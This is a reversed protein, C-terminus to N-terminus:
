KFSTNHLKIYIEIIKIMASFFDLFHYYHTNLLKSLYHAVIFITLFALSHFTQIDILVHASFNM